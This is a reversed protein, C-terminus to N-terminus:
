CAAESDSRLFLRSNSSRTFLKLEALYESKIARTQPKARIPAHSTRHSRAPGPRAAPGSLATSHCLGRCVCLNTSKSPLIYISLSRLHSSEQTLSTVSCRAKVQM